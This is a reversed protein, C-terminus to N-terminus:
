RGRGGRGGRGRFTERMEETKNKVITNYEKKTVEKGKVPMKIDGKETPNMVIKSCLLTTKGSSVELILGPLGWFEGPGNNIPIQM